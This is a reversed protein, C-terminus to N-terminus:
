NILIDCKGLDKLIQIHCEKLSEKDLVNARYGKAIGGDAVIEEAYRKAAEENLDLLAVKAGAQALSKALMSCIVGGAGTVVAVKGTLNTNIPNKM